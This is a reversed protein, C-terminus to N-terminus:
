CHCQAAPPGLNTGATHELSTSFGQERLDIVYIIVPHGVKEHYSLTDSDCETHFQVALAGLLFRVALVALCDGFDLRRLNIRTCWSKMLKNLLSNDITTGILNLVETFFVTTLFFIVLIKLIFLKKACATFIGRTEVVDM